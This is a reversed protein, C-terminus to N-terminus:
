EDGSVRLTGFRIAEPGFYEGREAVERAFRADAFAEFVNGAVSGGKIPQVDDATVEYGLRIESGFNGTIPDVDPASFAVVYYVPGDRQLLELLSTIGPAVETNGLEGTAPIRLYQAYRQTAHRTRLEGGDILVIDQGPVGDGDFPRSRLGFPRRANSRLTLRDGVVQRDGYVTQGVELSSLKAYAATASAQFTFADFLPPLADGGIVVPGSRTRPTRARLTDRAFTAAEAVTEPLQLDALRRRHVQRFHEGEDTGAGRALLVLEMLVDTATAAGHVGQGNRLESDTYTLFLEAASLRVDREREVLAWLEDAFGLAAQKSAQADALAPDTRPVDPYGAPGALAYPENHVLEAMLVADDLRQALRSRDAPVLTLSAVGRVIEDSTPTHAHRRTPTGAGGSGSSGSGPRPHDNLVTLDYHETAVERLSEITRGILYLQVSRSRRRRVIWDSVGRHRSLAAVIDDLM